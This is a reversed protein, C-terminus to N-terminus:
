KASSHRADTSPPCAARGYEQLFYPYGDSATLLQDLAAPEFEVGHPRAPDTLADTALVRFCEGTPLEVELPYAAKPSLRMVTAPLDHVPLRQGVEVGTGRPAVIRAFQADTWPSPEM